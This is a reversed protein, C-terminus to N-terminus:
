GSNCEIKGSKDKESSIITTGENNERHSITTENIAELFRSLHSKFDIIKMLLSPPKYIAKSFHSNALPKLKACCMVQHLILMCVIEIIYTPIKENEGKKPKQIM